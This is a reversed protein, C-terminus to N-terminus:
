DRANNMREMIMNKLNLAEDQSYNYYDQIKIVIDQELTLESGFLGFIKGRAKVDGDHIFTIMEDIVLEDKIKGALTAAERQDMQMAAAISSITSNTMQSPPINSLANAFAEKDTEVEMVSQRPTMVEARAQKEEEKEATKIDQLTVGEYPYWGSRQVIVERGDGDPETVQNRYEYMKENKTEPDYKLQYAVGKYSFESPSYHDKYKKFYIEDKNFGYVREIEPKYQQSM